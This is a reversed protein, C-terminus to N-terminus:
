DEDFDAIHPKDLADRILWELDAVRKRSDELLAANEYLADSLPLLDALPGHFPIEYAVSVAGFDFLTLEIRPLTVMPGVRVPSGNQIIRLPTPRYQFSAPTRRKRSLEERETDRCLTSAAELNAGLAIDYAFHAFCSGTVTEPVAM